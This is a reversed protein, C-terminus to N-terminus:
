PLPLGKPDTLGAPEARVAATWATPDCGEGNPHQEELTVVTADTVIEKGDISDVSLRLRVHDPGDTDPLPIDLGAVPDGPDGSKREECVENACFRLTAADVAGFDSPRWVLSVQSDMGILTCAGEGTGSCGTLVSAGLLAPLM